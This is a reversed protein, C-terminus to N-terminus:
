CIGHMPCHTNSPILTDMGHWMKNCTPFQSYAAGMWLQLFFFFVLSAWIVILLCVVGMRLQLFFLCRHGPSLLFLCCGDLTTFFLFLSTWTVILFLCCEDLTTFFYVAISMHCDPIFLVWGSNYFFGFLSSLNVILFLWCGDLTALFKITIVLDGDPIFLVWGSNYFFYATINM